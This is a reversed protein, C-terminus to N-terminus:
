DNLKTDKVIFMKTAEDLKVDYRKAYMESLVNNVARYFSDQLAESDVAVDEATTGDNMTNLVKKLLMKTGKFAPTGDKVHAPNTFAKHFAALLADQQGKKLTAKMPKIVENYVKVELISLITKISKPDDNGIVWEGLDEDYAISGEEICEQAYDRVVEEIDDALQNYIKMGATARDGFRSAANAKNLANKAATAAAGTYNGPTGPEVLNANPEDEGIYENADDQGFRWSFDEDDVVIRRGDPLSATITKEDLKEEKAEVITPEEDFYRSAANYLYQEALLKNKKDM